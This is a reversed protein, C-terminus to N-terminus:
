RIFTKEGGTLLDKKIAEHQSNVLPPFDNLPFFELELTEENDSNLEGTFDTAEFFHAIPQCVDGNPYHDEYKSYVGLLKEVSIKLGTEEFIERIVAEELSEGLEVAGGPFGWLNKDGRKQLLIEGKKNKICAGVFNLMIKEHGLKNRMTKIYDM